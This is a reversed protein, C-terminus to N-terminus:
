LSLGVRSLLQATGASKAHDLVFILLESLEASNLQAMGFLFSLIKKNIEILIVLYYGM